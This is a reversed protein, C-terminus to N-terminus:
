SVLETRRGTAIGEVIASAIDSCAALGQVFPRDHMLYPISGLFVRGAFTEPGILSYDEAVEPMELGAQLMANRLTPFPLDKCSLPKQGRADIFVDFIRTENGSGIVTRSADRTVEYDEGLELVSLIGADRLALVRRISEPPVAAYNDVFVKKLGADFRERDSDSLDAVIDEVKEHMRLLTYRWAVTIQQSKNREVEELNARAWRFPDSASRAAFYAAAFSDCDLGGLGIRLAYAPDAQTIEDRVLEFLADLPSTESVCAAVAAETMVSLPEYPIPCYFDAEPLIGSRSMLTIHLGETATVFQLDDGKRRFRGHQNAVAMAADISSLSTGM